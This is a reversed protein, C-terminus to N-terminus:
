PRLWISRVSVDQLVLESVKVLHVTLLGVYPHVCLGAKGLISNMSKM